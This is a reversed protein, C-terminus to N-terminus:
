DSLWIKAIGRGTWAHLIAWSEYKCFVIVPWTARVTKEGYVDQYKGPPQSWVVPAYPSANGGTDLVAMRWQERVRHAVVLETQETKGDNRTLVLAFPCLALVFVPKLRVAARQGPSWLNSVAAAVGVCLLRSRQAYITLFKRCAPKPAQTLARSPTENRPAAPSSSDRMAKFVDLALNRAASPIVACVLNECLSMRRRAGVHKSNCYVQRSLVPLTDASRIFLLREHGEALPCQSGHLTMGPSALFRARSLCVAGFLGPRSEESQESHCRM